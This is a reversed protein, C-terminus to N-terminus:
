NVSELIKFTKKFHDLFIKECDIKQQELVDSLSIEVEDFLVSSEPNSSDLAKQFNEEGFLIKLVRVSTLDNYPTLCFHVGDFGEYNGEAIFYPIFQKKAFCAEKMVDWLEIKSLCFEDDLDEDFVAIEKTDLEFSFKSQSEVSPLDLDLYDDVYSEDPYSNDSSQLDSLDTLTQKGFLSEIPFIKGDLFVWKFVAIGPEKLDLYDHVGLNPDCLQNWLWIRKSLLTRPLDIFGRFSSIEIPNLIKLDREQLFDFLPKVACVEPNKGLLDCNEKM